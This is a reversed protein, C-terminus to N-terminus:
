ERTGLIEAALQGDQSGAQAEFMPVRDVWLTVPDSENVKFPLYDGEALRLFQEITMSCAGLQLRLNMPVSSLALELASRWEEDVVVADDSVTSRLNDLMPELFTRPYHLAFSGAMKDNLQINFFMSFCNETAGAVSLFQPDTDIKFLELDLTTVPDWATELQKELSKAIRQSLKREVPSLLKVSEGLAEGDGGLMADVHAVILEIDFVLMMRGYGEVSYAFFVRPKGETIISRYSLEDMRDFAVAVERNFMDSWQNKLFEAMREQLNVFLPYRAPGDLDGADFQYPVVDKPQKLPPLSAFLAEVQEMPAMSAMLAEIEEPELIPAKEPITHDVKEPPDSENVPEASADESSAGEVPEEVVADEELDDSM